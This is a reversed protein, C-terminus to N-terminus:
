ISDMPSSSPKGRVMWSSWAEANSPRSMRVPSWQKPHVAPAPELQRTDIVVPPYGESNLTILGDGTKCAAAIIDLDVAAALVRGGNHDTHNGCVETRGPSSFLEMESEGPYLGRFKEILASYRAQQQRVIEPRRGYLQGLAAEGRGSNIFSLWEEPRSM